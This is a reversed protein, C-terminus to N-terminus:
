VGHRKKFFRYSDFIEEARPDTDLLIVLCNITEKIQAISQQKKKGEIKSVAVALDNMNNIKMAPGM